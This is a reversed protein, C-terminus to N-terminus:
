QYTVSKDACGTLKDANVLVAPFFHLYRDTRGVGTAVKRWHGRRWHPRKPTGDAALVPTAPVRKYLKISQDIAYYRPLPPQKLKHRKAYRRARTVQKREPLQRCGYNVLLLAANLAVRMADYAVAREEDSGLESWQNPSALEKSFVSEVAQDPSTTGSLYFDDGSDFVVYMLIKDAERELIVFSPSHKVAQGQFVGSAVKKRSFDDPLEVILCPYPQRYEGWTLSLTTNELGEADLRDLRVIRPASAARAVTHATILCQPPLVDLLTPYEM